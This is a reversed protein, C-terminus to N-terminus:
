SYNELFYQSIAMKPPYNTNKILNRLIGSVIFERLHSGLVNVAIDINIISLQELFFSSVIGFVYTISSINNITIM